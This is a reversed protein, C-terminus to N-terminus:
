DNQIEEVTETTIFDLLEDVVSANAQARSQIKIADMVGQQTTFDMNGLIALAEDSQALMTNLLRQLAPTSFMSGLEKRDSEKLPGAQMIEQLLKEKRNNM